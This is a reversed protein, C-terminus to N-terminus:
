KLWERMSILVRILVGSSRSSPTFRAIPRGRNLSAIRFPYCVDNSSYLVASNQLLPSQTYALRFPMAKHLSRCSSKFRMSNLILM